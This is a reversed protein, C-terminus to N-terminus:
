NHFFVVSLDARKGKKKLSTWAVQSVKIWLECLLCHRVRHTTSRVQIVGAGATGIGEKTEGVCLTIIVNQASNPASTKKKVFIFLVTEWAGQLKKLRVPNYFGRGDIM